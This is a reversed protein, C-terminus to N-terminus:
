VSGKMLSYKLEALKWDELTDIDQSELSSVIFPASSNTFIKKDLKFERVDLWYFQGCDYYWKELDQSRTNLFEPFNFQLNDITINFSRQPNSAYETVCVVSKAQTKQMIQYSEKLKSSTVFPATPYLCCIDDYYEGVGELQEVVECLVDSTTSFDDSNKKSRLFPVEAGASISVERIEEDDTSVLVRSFLGSKLAANISYEILPKGLFPKINKRPIRKSGGRATIVAVVKRKSM